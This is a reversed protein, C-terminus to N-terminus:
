CWTRAGPSPRAGSPGCCHLSASAGVLPPAAAQVRPPPKAELNLLREYAQLTPPSPEVGLERQLVTTCTHYAHMAAARDGNLAHLRM